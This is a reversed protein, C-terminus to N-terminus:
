NLWRDVIFPVPPMKGAPMCTECPTGPAGCHCADPHDPSSCDSPRDKHAECV